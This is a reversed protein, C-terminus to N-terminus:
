PILLEITLSAAAGNENLAFVTVEDTGSATARYIPTEGEFRIEGFRSFFKLWVERGLPDTAQVDLQVPRGLTLEPVGPELRSIEPPVPGREQPRAWIWEDLARAPEAVEVVERGGNRILVVLNARAFLAATGGPMSFGVDGLESRALDPSQFEGLARVLLEHAASRDPCEFTEVTLLVQESDGRTWNSRTAPPWNPIEPRRLREARWGTLEHGGLFFNRVLLNEELRNTGRWKDFEHHQKFSESLGGRDDGPQM